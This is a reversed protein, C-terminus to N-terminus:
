FKKYEMCDSPLPDNVRWDTVLARCQMVTQELCKTSPYTRGHDLAIILQYLDTFGSKRYWKKDADKFLETVSWRYVIVTESWAMWLGQNWWQQTTEEDHDALPIFCKLKDIWTKSYGCTCDMILKTVLKPRRLCKSFSYLKAFPM